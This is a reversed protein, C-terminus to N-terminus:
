RLRRLAALPAMRPDALRRECGCPGRSLDAGCRDCLGRCDARCQAVMPLALILMERALAPVDLWLGGDPTVRFGIAQAEDSGGAWEIEEQVAAELHHRLPTACRDCVLGVTTQLRGEVRLVSGLNTLELHGGVPKDFAVEAIGSAVTEHCDIELIAGRETHLARLDVKM